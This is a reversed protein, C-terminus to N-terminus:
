PVNPIIIIFMIEVNDISQFLKDLIFAKLHAGELDGM